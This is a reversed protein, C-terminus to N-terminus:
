MGLSACHVQVKEKCLELQEVTVDGQNVTLTINKSPISQNDIFQCAGNSYTFPTTVAIHLTTPNVNATDWENTSVTNGSKCEFHDVALGDVVGDVAALEDATFCPCPEVAICPMAPDLPQKRKNYNALIKGSPAQAELNNFDEETIPVSADAFDHAECFAVCLGYLGKTIGDATLPSCVTEEPTVAVASMTFMSSSAFLLGLICNNIKKMKIIEGTLYTM